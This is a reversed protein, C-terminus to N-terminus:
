AFVSVRGAPAASEISVAIDREHAPQATDMRAARLTLWQGNALHVRALPPGDDVGAETALV